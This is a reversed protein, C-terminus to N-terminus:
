PSSSSTDPAYPNVLRDLLLRPPMARHPSHCNAKRESVTTTCLFLMESKLKYKHFPNTRCPHMTLKKRVTQVYVGCLLQLSVIAIKKTM